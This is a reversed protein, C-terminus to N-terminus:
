KKIEAGDTGAEYFDAPVPEEHLELLGIEGENISICTWIAIQINEILENLARGNDLQCNGTLRRDALLLWLHQNHLRMCCLNAFALQEQM